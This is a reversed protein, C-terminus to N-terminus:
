LSVTKEGPSDKKREELLEATLSPTRPLFGTAREIPDDQPPLIYLLDGYEFVTCERGPILGYKKRLDASILIQGKDLIKLKEM